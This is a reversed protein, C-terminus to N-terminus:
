QKNGRKNGREVWKWLAEYCEPCLDLVEGFRPPYKTAFLQKLEEKTYIEKRCRDCRYNIMNEQKDEREKRGGLTQVLRVYM